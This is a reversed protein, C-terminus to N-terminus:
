RTRFVWASFSFGFVALIVVVLLFAVHRDILVSLAQLSYSGSIILLTYFILYFLFDCNDERAASRRHVIKKNLYYSVCIGFFNAICYSFIIQANNFLFFEFIIFTVFTAFLGAFVFRLIKLTAADGTFCNDILRRM